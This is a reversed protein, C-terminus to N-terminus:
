LGKVLNGLLLLIYAALLLSWASFPVAVLALSVLIALVALLVSLVLILQSPPTIGWRYGRRRDTISLLAVLLAGGIIAWILPFTVGGVTIPLIFPLGLTRALWAGLFAGIFGIIIALLLSDRRYGTLSQGIAGAVAAVVLLIIFEVLTM